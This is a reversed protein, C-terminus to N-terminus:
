LLQKERTPSSFARCAEDCLNAPAVLYYVLGDRRWVRVICTCSELSSTKCGKTTYTTDLELPLDGMDEQVFLSVVPGDPRITPDPKYMLHASRGSGPVSCRGLGAFTYGAQMLPKSGLELVSPIKKLLEVAAAQAEAHTRATMKSDFAEGFGACMDHQDNTFSVFHMVRGAPIPGATSANQVGIALQGPGSSAPRQLSVYGLVAAVLAVSAAVGYFLGMRRGSRHDRLHHHAAARDALTDHRTPLAHPENRFSDLISARLSDPAKASPHEAAARGVRQKLAVEFAVRRDISPDQRRLAEFRERDAPSLEGDAAARILAALSLPQPAGNNPNSEHASTM